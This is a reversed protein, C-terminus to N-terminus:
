NDWYCGLQSIRWRAIRLSVQIGFGSEQIM